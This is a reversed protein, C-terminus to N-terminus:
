VKMICMELKNQIIVVTAVFLLGNSEVIFRESFIIMGGNPFTGERESSRDNGQSGQLEHGTAERM